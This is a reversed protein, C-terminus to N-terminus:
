AFLMHPVFLRRRNDELHYLIGDEEVANTANFERDADHLLRRLRQIDPDNRQAERIEEALTQLELVAVQPEALDERDHFAPAVPRVIADEVAAPKAMGDPQRSLLDPLENQTGPCHEIDFTFKQLLM